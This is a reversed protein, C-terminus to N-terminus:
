MKFVCRETKEQGKVVSNVLSSSHVAERAGPARGGKSEKSSLKMAGTKVGFVCIAQNDDLLYFYTQDVYIRKRCVYLSMYINCINDYIYM